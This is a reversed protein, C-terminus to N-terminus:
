KFPKRQIWEIKPSLSPFINKMFPNIACNNHKILGFIEFPEAGITSKIELATRGFIIRSFQQTIGFEVMDLLMNLYLQMQKQIEKDYGLFYTDIDKSNLILTYFGVLRDDFFYGFIKFNKNLCEKMKEFHNEALFFTNFPANEAVNQYLVNMTHQHKRIDSLSLEQKIIGLSKKKASKARDRYKKSFDSLYDNFNKWNERLRMMMNPQVSFRFYSEHNKDQFYKVFNSQYDKYIVLDTKRIEKQMRCVAEDLLSVMKEITVKSGDFYFGNQGTLMNNGLIMVDKSFQRATFNRMDCLMENKQFTKHQLFDLYQFLAGGILQDDQFFGFFFCEMNEPKSVELVCFYEKSLMINHNGVIANWNEPLDSTKSYIKLTYSM